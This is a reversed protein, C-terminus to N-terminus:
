GAPPTALLDTLEAVYAEAHTILDPHATPTNAELALFTTLDAYAAQRSNQTYYLLGRLYYARPLNPALELATNYDELVTDWEYLYLRHQGRLLYLDALYGIQFYRIYKVGMLMGIVYDAAREQRTTDNGM